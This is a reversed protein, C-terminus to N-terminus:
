LPPAPKHNTERRFRDHVADSVFDTFRAAAVGIVAGKIREWADFAEAALESQARRPPAPRGRSHERGGTLLALFVGGGFALGMMPIPNNRFHEKWDAAARVKRELEELNSGLGERTEAIHAEIERATQGM